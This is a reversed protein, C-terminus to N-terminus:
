SKYRGGDVPGNIAPLFFVIWLQVAICNVMGEMCAQCCLHGTTLIGEPKVCTSCVIYGAVSFRSIGLGCCATHTDWSLCGMGVNQKRIVLSSDLAASPCVFIDPAPLARWFYLRRCGSACGLVMGLNFCYGGQTALKPLTLRACSWPSDWINGADPRCRRKPSGNCEVTLAVHPGTWKLPIGARPASARQSAALRWKDTVRAISDRVGATATSDSTM